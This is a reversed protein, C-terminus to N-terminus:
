SIAVWELIRAQSIGHISFGPPSCDMLDYLTLWSQAVSCARMYVSLNHLCETVKGFGPFVLPWTNIFFHYYLSEIFENEREVKVYGVCEWLYVLIFCSLRNIVHQYNCKCNLIIENYILLGKVMEPMLKAMLWVTNFVMYIEISALDFKIKFICRFYKM